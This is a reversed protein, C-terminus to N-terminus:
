QIQDSYTPPTIPHKLADFFRGCPRKKTYPITHESGEYNLPYFMETRLLLHLNLEQRPCWSLVIYFFSSYFDAVYM